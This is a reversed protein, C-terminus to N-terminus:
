IGSAFVRNSTRLARKPEEHNIGFRALEDPQFQGSGLVLARGITLLGELCRAHLDLHAATPSGIVIRKHEIKRFQRMALDLQFVKRAFATSEGERSVERILGEVWGWEAITIAETESIQQITAM